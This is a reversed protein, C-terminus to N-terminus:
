IDFEHGYKSGPGDYGCEGVRPSNVVPLLLGEGEFKKAHKKCYTNGDGWAGGFILTAPADCVSCKFEPALNRALLKVTDKPNMLGDRESVIRLNLYTSSGFDYTYSFKQGVSLVKELEVYLSHDEIMDILFKVARPRERLQFRQMLSERDNDKPLSIKVKLEERLYKSADDRSHITRLKAVIDDPITELLFPEFEEELDFKDYDEEDVDEEDELDEEDDESDESVTDNVEISAAEDPDLIEINSIDFSPPETEYYFDGIQFASLHDCCEVWVARIFDDLDILQADTPMEIHMWYQPNYKGELVIHFLKTQVYKKGKSSKATEAEMRTREKCNKLHQSMKAKEFEGRCFKCIGAYSPKIKTQEKM